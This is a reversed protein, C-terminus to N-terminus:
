MKCRMKLIKLLTSPKIFYTDFVLEEHTLPINKLKKENIKIEYDLLDILYTNFEKTTEGILEPIM